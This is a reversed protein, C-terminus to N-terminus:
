CCLVPPGQLLPDVVRHDQEKASRAVARVLRQLPPLCAEQLVKFPQWAIHVQERELIISIALDQQAKRVQILHSIRRGGGQQYVKRSGSEIHCHLATYPIHM